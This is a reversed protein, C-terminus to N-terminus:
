QVLVVFVVVVAAAVVVVVVVVVVSTGVSSIPTPQSHSSYPVFKKGGRKKKADRM